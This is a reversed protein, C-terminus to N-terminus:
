GITMGEGVFVWCGLLEPENIPELTLVVPVGTESNTPRLVINAVAQGTPANLMDTTMSEAFLIYRSPHDVIAESSVYEPPAPTQAPPFSTAGYVFQAPRFRQERALKLNVFQIAIHPNDFEVNARCRHYPIAVRQDAEPSIYLAVSLRWEVLPTEARVARLEASLAEVDPLSARSSLLRLLDPRRASRTKTGERWPVEWSVKGGAPNKVVFPVRDTEFHLAAVTV